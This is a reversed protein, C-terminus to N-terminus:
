EVSARTLAYQGTAEDVIGDRMPGIGYGMHVERAWGLHGSALFRYGMGSRWERDSLFRKCIDNIIFSVRSSQSLLLMNYSNSAIRNMYRIAGFIQWWEMLEERRRRGITGQGTEREAVLSPYEVGVVRVGEGGLLGGLRVDLGICEGGMGSAGAVLLGGEDCSDM